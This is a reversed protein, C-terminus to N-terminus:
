PIGAWLLWARGPIPYAELGNRIAVLGVLNGASLLLRCESVRERRDSCGGFERSPFIRDRARRAGRLGAPDGQVHVPEAGATFLSLAETGDRLAAVHETRYAKEALLFSLTSRGYFQPAPQFRGGITLRPILADTVM